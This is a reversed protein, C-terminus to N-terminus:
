ERAAAKRRERILMDVVRKPKKKGNLADVCGRLDADATDPIEVGTVAALIVRVEAEMSRGAKAARIRLRAHIADPLNRVTIIAM